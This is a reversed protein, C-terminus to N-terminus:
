EKTKPRKAKPEKAKPEKAQPEKAKAKTEKTKPEKTKPEKAKTEKTKTKTESVRAKTEQALLSYSREYDAKEKERRNKNIVSTRALFQPFKIAGKKNCTATAQIVSCASYPEMYLLVDSASLAEASAVLNDLKRVEDRVNFTTNIYNEQVMLPHLESSRWYTDWKDDLTEEMSLLKGTTDFVNTSQLDKKFANDKCRLQLSNLMFRIDGNSREYWAQVDAERIRIRETTVVRYMLRYVEAYLPKQMKFDVSYSLIPKISQDYRNDCLCVIPVQSLKICETLATIFGYDSVCDIDSVLLANMQGDYTKRSVLLPKIVTHMYDRNRDDDLALHIVHYDHQVLLLEAFLSKGIGCVGSILACKTKLRQADWELLWEIFPQVLSKNGVFDSISKPRYVTTFM